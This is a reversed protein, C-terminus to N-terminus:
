AARKARRAKLREIREVEIRAKRQRQKEIREREQAKEKAHQKLWARAREIEDPAFLRSGDSARKVAIKGMDCYHRLTPRPIGLEVAADGLALYDVKM